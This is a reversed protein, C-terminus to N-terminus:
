MCTCTCQVHSESSFHTNENKFENPLPREKFAYMWLWLTYYMYVHIWITILNNHICICEICVTLLATVLVCCNLGPSWFFVLLKVIPPTYEAGFEGCAPVFVPIVLYQSIVYMYRTCYQLTFPIVSQFITSQYYSVWSVKFQRQRQM